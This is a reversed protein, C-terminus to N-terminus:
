RAVTAAWRRDHISEFNTPVKERRRGNILVAFDADARDIEILIPPANV